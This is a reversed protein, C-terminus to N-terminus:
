ARSRWLFCQNAIPARSKYCRSCFISAKSSLWQRCINLNSKTNNPSTLEVNIFPLVSYMTTTDAIVPTPASPHTLNLELKVHEITKGEISSMKMTMEHSQGVQISHSTPTTNSIAIEQPNLLIHNEAEQLLKTVDPKGFGYWNHFHFGASNTVWPHVAIASLGNSLSFSVASKNNDIKAATKALLYKVDRYSLDPRKQLLLAVM